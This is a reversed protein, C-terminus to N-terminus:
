QTLSKMTKHLKQIPLEYDFKATVMGKQGVWLSTLNDQCHGRGFVGRSPTFPVIDEDAGKDDEQVSAYVILFM